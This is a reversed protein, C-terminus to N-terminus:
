FVLEQHTEPRYIRIKSGDKITVMVRYTHLANKVAYFREVFNQKRLASKTEQAVHYDKLSDSGMCHAGEILQKIQATLTM